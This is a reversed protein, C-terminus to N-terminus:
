TKILAVLALYPQLNNHAGDGGVNSLSAYGTGTVGASPIASAAPAELGGNIITATATGEVHTHGTDAHTHSPMETTVLTHSEEGGADALAFDTGGSQQGVGVAVRGRLDPLNFTTTGDGAGFTTGIVAFLHAYTTRSVASGDCELWGDPVTALAQYVIMGTQIVSCGEMFQSILADSREQALTLAGPDSTDWTTQSLLQYLCGLVRPLWDRSFCVYHLVGTDPDSVPLPIPVQFSSLADPNDRNPLM